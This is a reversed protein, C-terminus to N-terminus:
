STEEHLRKAERWLDRLLAKSAIRLADNHSHGDSWDAHTVATHTRRADYEARYPSQRQKICSVAILYARTKATTSWNARQGKRRRAAVGANRARADTTRHSADGGQKSGGVLYGHDGHDAQDVPLVHLGCYAWLESVTRPRDHLTNWYPDGIAALLRAAQKEGVGPTSKVWSGLPHKRMARQLGLVAQHELDALGAVLGALRAVDPHDETLGFGRTEGDSDEADRTLQRLRNENAVRTRELDDVVDAQLALFPDALRPAARIPTPEANAATPPRHAGQRPEKEPTASSTAAPFNVGGPTEPGPTSLSLAPPVFPEPLSDRTPTVVRKAAPSDLAPAATM